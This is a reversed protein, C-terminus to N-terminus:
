IAGECELWNHIEDTSAFFDKFDNHPVEVGFELWIYYYIVAQAWLDTIATLDESVTNKIKKIINQATLIPSFYKFNNKLWENWLNEFNNLKIGTLLLASKLNEYNLITEITIPTSNSDSRWKYRLNHDRLFLFYKERQAWPDDTLWLSFDLQEDISSKM